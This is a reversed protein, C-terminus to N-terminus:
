GRDAAAFVLKFYTLGQGFFPSHSLVVQPWATELAALADEFFAPGGFNGDKAIICCTNLDVKPLVLEESQITKRM